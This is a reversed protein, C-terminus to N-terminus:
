TGTFCGEAAGAGVGITADRAEGPTGDLMALATCFHEGRLFGKTGDVPDLIWTRAATGRPARGFDVADVLDDVSM